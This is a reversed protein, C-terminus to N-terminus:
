KGEGLYQSQAFAQNLGNEIRVSNTTRDALGNLAAMWIPPVRNGTADVQDPDQM